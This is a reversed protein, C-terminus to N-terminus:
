NDYKVTRNSADRLADLQRQKVIYDYKGSADAYTYQPYIAIGGRVSYIMKVELYQPHLLNVLDKGITNCIDEHFSGTMRFSGLYLKLSKSEVCLERPIYSIVAKFFDPQHTKPCNHVVVGNAFFNHIDEVEMNYVDSVGCPEVSVVRHNLPPLPNEKRWTRLDNAGRVPINYRRLANLITTEHLDLYDGIEYSTYGQKYLRCIELDRDQVAIRNKLSLSESQSRIKVKGVLRDKITGDYCKHLQAIQHISLGSEYMEILEDIDLSDDYGYDESRHHHQHDHKTILELNAPSNNSHNHDKHHVDLNRDHMIDLTLGSMSSAILRHKSAGKITDGTCGSYVLHMGEKLDSAKIWEYKHGFWDSKVLILHDPTCKLSTYDWDMLASSFYKMTIKVVPVCKRTLRVDKYKRCTVKDLDPDFGFVYGETDVLDRIPIGEPYKSEDRATEVLTDGTLCLSSGETCDFSIVYDNDQHKNIFTELLSPDYTYVYNTSGSGLSNAGSLEDASRTSLVQESM